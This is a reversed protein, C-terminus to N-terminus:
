KPVTADGQVTVKQGNLEAKSLGMLVAEDGVSYLLSAELADGLQGGSTEFFWKPDKGSGRTVRHAIGYILGARETTGRESSVVSKVLKELSM